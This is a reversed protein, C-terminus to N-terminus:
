DKFRHGVWRARIRLGGPFCWTDSGAKGKGAATRWRREQVYEVHDLQVALVLGPLSSLSTAVISM